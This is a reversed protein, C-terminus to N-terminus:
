TNIEFKSLHELFESFTHGCLQINDLSMGIFPVEVIPMSESRTDFAYGTGGGDSGFLLLGLAFKNVKYADNLLTIEEIPWLVLYSTEGVVGESGNSYELYSVYEKPFSIKLDTEIKTINERLAGPNHELNKTLRSIIEDM